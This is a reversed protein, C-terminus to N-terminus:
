AARLSHATQSQGIQGESHGSQQFASCQWFIAAEGVFSHQTLSTLFGIDTKDPPKL